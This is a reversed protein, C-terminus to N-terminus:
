EIVEFPLTATVSGQARGNFTVNVGYSGPLFFDGEANGTDSPGSWNRGSWKITGSATTASPKIMGAQDPPCCGVDCLCYNQSQGSASTGGIGFSVFSLPDTSPPSCDGCSMSAMIEITPVSADTTVQYTFVAAEGVHYVCRDSQISLSVGPITGTVGTVSCPVGDAETTCGVLCASATATALLVWFAVGIMARM